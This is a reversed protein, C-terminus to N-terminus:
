FELIDIFEGLAKPSSSFVVETKFPRLVGTEEKSGGPDCFIEFQFAGTLIMLSLQENRM